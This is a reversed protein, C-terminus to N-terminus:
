KDDTLTRSLKAQLTGRFGRGIDSFCYRILPSGKRPPVLSIVGAGNGDEPGGHLAINHVIERLTVVFPEVLEFARDETPLIGYREQLYRRVDQISHFVINSWNGRSVLHIRTLSEQLESKPYQFKLLHFAFENSFTFDLHQQLDDFGVYKLYALQKENEPLEVQTDLRCADRYQLVFALWVIGDSSLFDIDSMRIEVFRNNLIEDWVRKDTIESFVDWSLIRRGHRDPKIIKSLEIVETM